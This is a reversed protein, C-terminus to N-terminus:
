PVAHGGGVCWCAGEGGVALVAHQMCQARPRPPAGHLELNLNVLQPGATVYDVHLAKFAVHVM